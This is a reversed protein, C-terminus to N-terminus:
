NAFKARRSSVASLVSPAKAVKTRGGTSASSSARPHPEKFSGGGAKEKGHGTVAASGGSSRGVIGAARSASEAKVWKEMRRRDEERM